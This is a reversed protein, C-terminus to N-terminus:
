PAADVSDPLLWLHTCQWHHLIERLVLLAAAARPDPPLDPAQHSYHRSSQAVLREFLAEIAERTIAPVEGPAHGGVAQLALHRLLPDRTALLTHAPLLRALPMVADEVEMIGTELQAPTPMRLQFSRQSLSQLGLPLHHRVPPSTDSDSVLLTCVPGEM